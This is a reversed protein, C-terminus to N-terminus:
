FQYGFTRVDRGFHEMFLCRAKLDGFYERYPRRDAHRNTVPLQMYPKGLIDCVADYDHQLTEFKMVYDVVLLGHVNFLIDRQNRTLHEYDHGYM